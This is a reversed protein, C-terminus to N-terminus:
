RRLIIKIRSDGESLIYIGDPLAEISNGATRGLIDYIKTEGLDVAYINEIANAEVQFSGSKSLAVDIGDSKNVERTFTYVQNPEMGTVSVEVDTNHATGSGEQITIVLTMGGHDDERPSRRPSGSPNIIQGWDVLGQIGTAPIVLTAECDACDQKRVILRYSVADELPLWKLVVENENTSNSEVTRDTLRNFTQGWIPDARYLDISRVLENNHMFASDPVYLVTNEYFHYWSDLAEKINAEEDELNAGVVKPPFVPGDQPDGFAFKWPHIDWSFAWINISDVPATSQNFQITQLATLTSFVDAGIYRIRDNIKLDEVLDGLDDWPYTIDETRDALVADEDLWSSQSITLQLGGTKSPSIEYRLYSDNVYGSGNVVKGCLSWETNKSSYMELAESDRTNVIVAEVRMPNQPNSNETILSVGSPTTIVPQNKPDYRQVELTRLNSCGLFVYDGLTQIDDPFSVYSINTLDNFAYSGINDLNDLLVEKIEKRFEYWPADSASNYSPINYSIQTYAPKPSDLSDAWFQLQGKANLSYWVQGEQTEEPYLRGTAVYSVVISVSALQKQRNENYIYLHRTGERNGYIVLGNFSAPSGLEEDGDLMEMGLALTSLDAGEPEVALQLERQEGVGIYLTRNKLQSGDWDLVTVSEVAQAAAGVAMSLGLVLFFYIKRMM